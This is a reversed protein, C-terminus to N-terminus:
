CKVEESVVGFRIMCTDDSNDFPMFFPNLFKYYKSPPFSSSAAKQFVISSQFPNVFAM